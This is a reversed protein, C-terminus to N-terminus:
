LRARLKPARRYVTGIGLNTDAGRVGIVARPDAQSPASSASWSSYRESTHVRRPSSSLPPQPSTSLKPLTHHLVFPGNFDFYEAAAHLPKRNPFVAVSRGNGVRDPPERSARYLGGDLRIVHVGLGPHHRGSPVTPRSGRPTLPSRGRRRRPPCARRAGRSMHEAHGRTSQGSDGASVAAGSQVAPSSHPSQGTHDRPRRRHSPSRTLGRALNEEIEFEIHARVEDDFSPPQEM